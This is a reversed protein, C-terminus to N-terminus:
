TPQAVDAQELRRVFASAPVPAGFLPGAVLPCGRHALQARQADTEVGDAVLPSGLDRGLTILSSLLDGVGPDGTWSHLLRPDLRLQALPVERALARVHTGAGLQSVTLHIGLRDLQRLATRATGPLAHLTSETAILGLREPDVHRQTLTQALRAGLHRSQLSERMLPVWIRLAGTSYPGWDALQRCAQDLAWDGIQAVMGCERAVFLLTAPTVQGLDPESWYAQAECDLTWEGSARVIPRYRLEIRGEALAQRLRDELAGKRRASVIISSPQAMARGNRLHADRRLGSEASELLRAADGGDQPFVAVGLTVPPQVGDLDLLNMWHGIIRLLSRTLLPPAGPASPHEVAMAFRGRGLQALTARAGASDGLSAAASQMVEFGIDHDAPGDRFVTGALEVVMVSLSTFARERDRIRAEVQDVFTNRRAIWMEAHADGALPTSMGRLPQRRADAGIPWHAGSATNTRVREAVVRATADSITLAIVPEGGFQVPSLTWDWHGEKDLPSMAPAAGGTRQSMARRSSAVEGLAIAFRQTGHNLTLHNRGVLHEPRDGSLAAFVRNTRLYDGEPTLLAVGVGALDLLSLWADEATAGKAPALATETPDPSTPSLGSAPM